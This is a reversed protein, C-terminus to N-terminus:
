TGDVLVVVVALVVVLVMVGAGGNSGGGVSVVDLMVGRSGRGGGCGNERPM